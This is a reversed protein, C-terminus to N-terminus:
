VVSDLFRGCESVTIVGPEKTSSSSSRGSCLTKLPGHHYLEPCTMDRAPIVDDWVSWSLSYATLASVSICRWDKARGIPLNGGTGGTLKGIRFEVGSFLRWAVGIGKLSSM